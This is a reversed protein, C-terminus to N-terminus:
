LSCVQQMKSFRTILEKYTSMIDIHNILNIQCIVLVVLCKIFSYCMKTIKVKFTKDLHSCVHTLVDTLKKAPKNVENFRLFLLETTYERFQRLVNILLALFILSYM